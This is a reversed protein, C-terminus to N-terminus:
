FALVSMDALMSDVIEDAHAAGEGMAADLEPATLLAQITAMTTAVQSDPTTLLPAGSDRRIEAAVGLLM